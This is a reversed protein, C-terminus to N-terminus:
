ACSRPAPVAASGTATTTTANVAEAEALSFAVTHVMSLQALGYVSAVSAHVDAGGFIPPWKEPQGTVNPPWPQSRAAAVVHSRITGGHAGHLAVTELFIIGVDPRHVRVIRVLAETCKYARGAKSEGDNSAEEVILVDADYHSIWALVSRMERAFGCIDLGRAGRNHVVHTGNVYGRARLANPIRGSFTNEPGYHESVGQGFAISAGVTLGRLGEGARLRGVARALSCSDSALAVGASLASRSIACDQPLARPLPPAAAAHSTTWTTTM